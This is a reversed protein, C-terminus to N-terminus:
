IINSMDMPFLFSYFMSTNGSLNVNADEMEQSTNSSLSKGKTDTFCLIHAKYFFFSSRSVDCYAVSHLLFCGKELTSMFDKNRRLETVFEENQLLLAVREDELYRKMEPDDSGEMRRLRENEQIKQQLM